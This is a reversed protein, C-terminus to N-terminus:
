EFGKVTYGAEEVAQKLVDDSVEKSLEIYACHNELDVRAQVGEIANLAKDVHRQCNICMMGEINMKKM